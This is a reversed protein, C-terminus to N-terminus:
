KVTARARLAKVYDRWKQEIISEILRPRVDALQPAQAPRVDELRILHWGAPSRVPSDSTRGRTMTPLVAAFEPSFQGQLTWELLGGSSASDIDKSHARALDEFRAGRALEDQLRKASGEDSVLIHRVRYEREGARDSLSDYLKRVEAESPQTNLFFDERLANILAQQRMFEIRTRVAESQGLRREAEQALVERGILEERAIRSLETSAPRGKRVQEKIIFDLQTRAVPRGNVTAVPADAALAPPTICATLAALAAAILQPRHM